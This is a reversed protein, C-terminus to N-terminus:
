PDEEPVLGLAKAEREEVFGMRELEQLAFLWADPDNDYSYMLGGIDFGSSGDSWRVYETREVKNDHVRIFWYIKGIKPKLM